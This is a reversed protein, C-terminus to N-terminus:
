LVVLITFEAREEFPGIAQAEGEVYYGPGNGVGAVVVKLGNPWLGVIVARKPIENGLTYEEPYVTCGENIWLSECLYVNINILTGTGDNAYCEGRTPGFYGGYYKGKKLMRLAYRDRLHLLVARDWARLNIPRWEYCQEAEKRPPFLAFSMIPDTMAKICPDSFHACEGATHNYNLAACTRSELCVLKCEHFPLNHLLLGEAPCYRGITPLQYQFSQCKAASTCASKYLLACLNIIILKWCISSNM